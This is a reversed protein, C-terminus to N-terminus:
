LRNGRYHLICRWCPETETPLVEEINQTPRAVWISGAIYKELLELFIPLHQRSKLYLM